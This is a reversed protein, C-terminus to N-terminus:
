DGSALEAYTYPRGTNPNFDDDPDPEGPDYPTGAADLHIIKGGRALFEAVSERQEPQRKAVHIPTALPPTVIPKRYSRIMGVYWRRYDGSGDVKLRNDYLMASLTGAIQVTPLHLEQALADTTLGPQAQLINTIQEAIPKMGM